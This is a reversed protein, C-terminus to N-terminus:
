WISTSTDTWSDIPGRTRTPIFALTLMADRGSWTMGPRTTAISISGVGFQFSHSSLRLCKKTRTRSSSVGALAKGKM